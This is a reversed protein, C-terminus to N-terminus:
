WMGEVAGGAGEVKEEGFAAGLLEDLEGTLAGIKKRERKRRSKSRTGEKRIPSLSRESPASQDTDTDSADSILQDNDLRFGTNPIQSTQAPAPATPASPM